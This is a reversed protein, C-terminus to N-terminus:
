REEGKQGGGDNHVIREKYWGIREEVMMDQVGGDQEDKVMRGM